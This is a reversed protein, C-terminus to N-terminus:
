DTIVLAAAASAAGVLLAVSPATRARRPDRMEGGTSRSTSGEPNAQIKVGRAERTAASTKSLFKRLKPFTRGHNNFNRGLARVERGVGKLLISELEAEQLVSGRALKADLTTLIRTKPWIRTLNRVYGLIHRPIHTRKKEKSFFSVVLAM